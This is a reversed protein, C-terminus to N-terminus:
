APNIDILISATGGCISGNNGDIEGLLNYNYLLSNHNKLAIISKKQADGEMIGGGLTGSLLESSSFLCAASPVQPTSGKTTLITVLALPRGTEIGNILGVYINKM